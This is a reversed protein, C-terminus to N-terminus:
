GPARERLRALARGAEERVLPEEHPDGAIQELRGRVGDAGAPDATNGAVLVANRRMMGLTARKIASGSLRRSRDEAAWGLVELLGLADVKPTYEPHRAGVEAGGPRASNHPCVEQCVDCGFMWDGVGRAMTPDVDGRHEVTLYSICRRADVTYPGIAGTPCADICRTCSGCHDPEAEQGPPPEIRLTSAFGGLLIWSGLRPHIVLTHKAIWGIGARAAYEREMVPATDVFARFQEGAFRARLEDCIVHLRQKIVEHYDRGRAYRAIRGSPGREVDGVGVGAAVGVGAGEGAGGAESRSGYQDAVMVISRAGALFLQSDLKIRSDRALYHMSGHKGAALWASFEEGRASPSADTVGAAAFGLEACRRVIQEGLNGPREPTM